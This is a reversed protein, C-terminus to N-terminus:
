TLPISYPASERGEGRGRKEYCSAVVLIEVGGPHSVLGDCTKVEEWAHLEGSSASLTFHRVWSCLVVCHGRGSSGLGSSEYALASVM